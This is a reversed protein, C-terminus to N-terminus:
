EKLSHERAQEIVLPELKQAEGDGKPIILGYGGEKRKYVINIEGTEENRFAYFDHDVNELQEIAEAVTLPPMDFYKTRVVEDITEEEEKASIEEEDLPVPEVPERVKLRNFGKMHRGHDSEKEKIKRLKRQIISSVLDISGYTSEADEEARVVGHRKTFITVECRRTRPGRGFEGGGRISLRVDVERVLHSHKQVAKGLKEEVHQKVADTLELNKGQIILKVSSLPGDWTMRVSLSGGRTTSTANAAHKLPFFTKLKTSSSNFHPRSLLSLTSSRGSSPSPSACLTAHFYLPPAAM